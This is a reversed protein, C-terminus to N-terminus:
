FKRMHSMFTQYEGVLGDDVVPTDGDDKFLGLAIFDLLIDVIHYRCSDQLTQEM